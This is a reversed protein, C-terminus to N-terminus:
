LFMDPPLPSPPSPLPPLPFFSLDHANTSIVGALGGAIFDSPWFLISPGFGYERVHSTTLLNFNRWLRLVNSYYACSACIDRFSIIGTFVIEIFVYGSSLSLYSLPLSPSLSLAHPNTSNIGAVRLFFFLAFLYAIPGCIKLFMRPRWSVKSYYAWMAASDWFTIIIIAFQM